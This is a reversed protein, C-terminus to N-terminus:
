YLVLNINEGWLIPVLKGDVIPSSNYFEKSLNKWDSVSSYKNKNPFKGGGNLITGLQYERAESPSVEDIDPMIIQGVKQELTM